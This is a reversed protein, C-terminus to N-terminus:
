EFNFVEETRRQFIPGNKKLRERYAAEDCPGDNNAETWGAVNTVAKNDMVAQYDPPSQARDQKEAM